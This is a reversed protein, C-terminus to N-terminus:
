RYACRFGLNPRPGSARNWSLRMDRGETRGAVRGHSAMFCPKGDCTLPPGRRLERAPYPDSTWEHTDDSVALRSGLTRFALEAEVMRPLSGGVFRCYSEAAAQELNNMPLRRAGELNSAVAPRPCSGSDVCEKYAGASVPRADICFPELEETIPSAVGATAPPWDKRGGKPQLFELSAAGVLLTGRKCGTPATPGRAAATAELVPPEPSAVSAAAEPAKPTAERRQPEDMAAPTATRAVVPSRPQANSPTSEAGSLRVAYGAFGGIAVAAVLSAMTLM